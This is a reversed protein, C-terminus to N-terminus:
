SRRGFGQKERSAKKLSMPLYRDWVIDIREVKKLNRLIYAMFIAMFINM